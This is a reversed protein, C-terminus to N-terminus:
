MDPVFMLLLSFQLITIYDGSICDLSGSNTLAILIWREFAKLRV